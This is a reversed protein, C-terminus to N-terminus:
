YLKYLLLCHRRSQNFQDASPDLVGVRGRVRLHTKKSLVVLTIRVKGDLGFTKVIDTREARVVFHSDRNTTFPVQQGVHPNFRRVDAVRSPTRSTKEAFAIFRRFEGKPNTTLLHAAEVRQEDLTHVVQQVARITRLATHRHRGSIHLRVSHTVRAAIRTVVDNREEEGLVPRLTQRENRERVVLHFNADLAAGVEGRTFCRLHVTGEDETVRLLTFEEHLIFVLEQNVLHLVLRHAGRVRFHVEGIEVVRRARHVDHAGLVVAGVPRGVVAERLAGQVDVAGRQEIAGGVHVVVRNDGLHVGGRERIVHQVRSGEVRPREGEGQVLGLHSAGQVKAADVGRAKLQLRRGATRAGDQAGVPHVHVHESNLIPQTANSKTILVYM